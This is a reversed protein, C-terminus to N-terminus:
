DANQNPEPRDGAVTVTGHTVLVLCPANKVLYEVTSTLFPVDKRWNEPTGLVIAEADTEKALRVLSEAASRAQFMRTEAHIGHETAVAFARHLVDEGASFKDFLFTEVPLAPPVEIVHVILLDADDEKALKAAVEAAATNEMEKAALIVKKLKLPKYEPIEVDELKVSKSVPVKKKFRYWVYTGIGVALWVFGLDRGFPHTIIVIIWVTFCAAFGLLGTIPIKRGAIPINLKLKFPRELNPERWRLGLLSAHALSFALMAGFNYLDALYTLKKGLAVIAVGVASFTILSIYPTKFKPHLTRFMKPLQYHEGMSYTLRSAGIIGANTAVTLITAGLIAVWPALVNGFYPMAKAVGSIPDELYTSTLPSMWEGGAGPAHPMACIAVVAIGLYMFLVTFMTLLMGRPVNKGPNRVEGSMQSIAEIGTYAVMAITVGYIFQGWTPHLGIHIQSLITPLNVFAVFGIVILFLQTVNGFIALVWSLNTSEKIGVVNLLTLLAILSGTAIIHYTPERLVPFFHGVYPIVTYASIAITVVYDLLLAWGAIFSILDSNFARRAFSSSGGAEPLAASLEAYTLVTFVFFIGAAMIALPAAGMAYLATVGMAYYISSGVDGYGISYIARVGILRLLHGRDFRFIKGRTEESIDFDHVGEDAM